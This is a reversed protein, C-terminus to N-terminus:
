LPSVKIYDVNVGSNGGTFKITNTKGKKLPVTIFAHGSYNNWSGTSLMNLFSYDVGNVTLRLKGQSPGAHYIDITARGTRGGNVKNFQLYSNPLNLDKVFKGGSAAAVTGITAGNGVIGNEAEYKVTKPNPAPPAGVSPVGTLTQEVPKITGDLNFYLLDVCMTRLNGRGSIAQNHYFLYWNNKYEVISGHSTNSGTPALLVGKYTWPGLPNSSTAYRLQNNPKTLDSYMLYYINNRKFVWTGEHFDILGEMNKLPGDMEIMNDKLKGGQCKRGGGYYFYATGDTDIFVAPDIMAFGGVGEMYGGVKFDKAPHTSTAVGVKWTGNWDTGSPHPFYFYYTGNKYACDPAWM